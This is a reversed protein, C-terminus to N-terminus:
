SQEEQRVKTLFPGYGTDGFWFQVMNSIGVSTLTAGSLADVHHPDRDPPGVPPKKLTLVPEWDADFIKRGPWLSKWFPNDVEGGLGPTEKHDYYTIASVTTTDKELVMFGYLTGWLGYGWIPLIIKDIEQERRVLYIKMILPVRQIRSRNSPAPKTQDNQGLVTELDYGQPDMDKVYEGTELDILHQEINRFLELVREDSLKDGQGALGSAEVIKRQRDLMKNQEQRERLTIATVSVVISCVLCVAGAVLVMSWASDRQM